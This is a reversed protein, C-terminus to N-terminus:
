SERRREVELRRKLHTYVQRALEDLDAEPAKASDPAPQQMSAATQEEESLNRELGARQVGTDGPGSGNRTSGGGYVGSLGSEAGGVEYPSQPPQPAVDAAYGSGEPTVSSSVLWDPLPEWPAPLGGWSDRAPRPVSVARPTGAGAPPEIPSGSPVTPLSAMQDVQEEAVRTVRREVQQALAEEDAPDSLRGPTMNGPMNASTSASNMVRAIPPVFRPERQRAVHTFEHALLGLTEPTDDPHGAAIAVDDGVTIADAQYVDTLHEAIADRHVHVSAPDIGVLPQLFRRARQSLPTSAPPPESTDRAINARAAPLSQSGAKLRRDQDTQPAVTASGENAPAFRSQRVPPIFQDSDAPQQRREQQEGTVSRTQVGGPETEVTTSPTAMNNSPVSNAGMLRAMWAEPSRDTNQPAFLDDAESAEKSVAEQEKRRAMRSPPSPPAAQAPSTNGPEMPQEQIRGRSRRTKANEILQAREDVIKQEQQLKAEVPENIGSSQDTNELDVSSAEPSRDSAAASEKIQQDLLIDQDHVELSESMQTEPLRGTNLLEQGGGALFQNVSEVHVEQQSLVKEPKDPLSSPEIETRDMTNAATQAFTAEQGPDEENQGAILRDPVPSPASSLVREEEAEGILLPRFMLGALPLARQRTWNSRRDPLVNIRESTGDTPMLEHLLRQHRAMRTVLPQRSAIKHALWRQRQNRYMLAHRGM